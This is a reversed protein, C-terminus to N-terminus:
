GPLVYILLLAKKQSIGILARREFPESSLSCDVPTAKRMVLVVDGSGRPLETIADGIHGVNPRLFGGDVDGWRTAKSPPSIDFRVVAPCLVTHSPCSRACAVRQLVLTLSLRRHEKRSGGRSWREESPLTQM